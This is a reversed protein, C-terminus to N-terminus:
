LVDLDLIKNTNYKRLFEAQTTFWYSEIIDRSVTKGYISNLLLKCLNALIDKGEAIAKKRIM